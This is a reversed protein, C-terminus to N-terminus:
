DWWIGIATDNPNGEQYDITDDANRTIELLDLIDQRNNIANVDIVLEDIDIRQKTVNQDDKIVVTEQGSFTPNLNPHNEAFRLLQEITPSLNHDQEPDVFHHDILQQLGDPNLRHIQHNNIRQCNDKIIQDRLKIDTNLQM